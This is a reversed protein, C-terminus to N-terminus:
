GELEKLLNYKKLLESQYKKDTNARIINDLNGEKALITNLRSIIDAGKEIGKEMGRAEVIDLVECMNRAERENMDDIIEEFRTDGTMVSMLMLLEDIHSITKKDAIYSKNVRMQYLYDALIWFDSSFRDIDERDLYAIEFINIKYDNIYPNLRKDINLVEVLNKPYIWRSDYGLYLVLTIVPYKENHRNEKRSQKVYEAGDYGIVRLPMLKDPKTQNELGFLAINIQNNNWYKAVDRDQFRVRGDMKLVSDTQLDILTEEAVVREGKFLLVNLIDSFVDNYRELMKQTIDKEQM